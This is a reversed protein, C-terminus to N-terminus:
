DRTPKKVLFPPLGGGALAFGFQRRQFFPDPNVPDAFLRPIPL